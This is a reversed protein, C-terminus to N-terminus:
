QALRVLYSVQLHLHFPKLTTFSERSLILLNVLSQHLLYGTFAILIYMLGRVLNLLFLFPVTMAMRSPKYIRIATKLLLLFIHDIKTLLLLTCGLLFELHTRGLFVIGIPRPLRLSQRDHSNCVNRGHKFINEIL